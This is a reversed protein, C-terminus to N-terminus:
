EHRLGLGIFLSSPSWRLAAPPTPSANVLEILLGIDGTEANWCWPVSSSYKGAEMLGHPLAIEIM